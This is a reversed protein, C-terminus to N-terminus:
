SSAEAPRMEQRFDQMARRLTITADVLSRHADRLAQGASRLTDVAQQHDAVNGDADFGAPNALIRGAEDHYDEATAVLRNFEALASELSSTDHGESKLLDIWEQALGASRHALDIRYDQSEYALQVRELLLSLRPYGGDQAPPSPEEAAQATAVPMALSGALVVLFALIGVATKSHRKVLATLNM